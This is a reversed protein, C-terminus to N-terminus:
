DLQNEKYSLTLKHRTNKLQSVQTEMQDYVM